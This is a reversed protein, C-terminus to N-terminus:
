VSWGEAELKARKEPDIKLKDFVAQSDAELVPSVPLNEEEGKRKRNQKGGATFYSQALPLTSDNNPLTFDGNVKAGATFYIRRWRSQKATIKVWGAAELRSIMLSVNSTHLCVIKGIEANSLRLGNKFSWVLGLLVKESLSLEPHYLIAGPIRCTKVGKQTM